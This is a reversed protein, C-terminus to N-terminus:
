SALHQRFDAIELKTRHQTISHGEQRLRQAQQEPGAPTKPSLTGNELIVRWYPAVPRQQAALQEEAAGAVLNFFIGTMLPCTLDAHFRAALRSRLEPVTLLTGKPINSIEEAVLMPTPLLMQGRGKPDAVVQPKMEPRLKEVWPTRSRKMGPNTRPKM